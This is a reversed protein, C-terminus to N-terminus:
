SKVLEVIVHNLERGTVTWKHGEVFYLHGQWSIAKQEWRKETTYPAPLEKHYFDRGIVKLGIRVAETCYFRSESHVRPMQRWFIHGIHYIYSKFDYKIKKDVEENCWKNLTASEELSLRPKCEFFVLELEERNVKDLYDQLPTAVFGCGIAEFVVPKGDRFGFLGNHNGPRTGSKWPIKSKVGFSNGILWGLTSYSKEHM